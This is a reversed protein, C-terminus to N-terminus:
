LVGAKKLSRRRRLRRQRRSLTPPDIQPPIILRAWEATPPDDDEVVMDIDSTVADITSARDVFVEPRWAPQLDIVGRVHRMQWVREEAATLEPTDARTQWQKDARIAVAQEALRKGCLWMDSGEPWTAMLLNGARNAYEEAVDAAVLRTHQTIEVATM